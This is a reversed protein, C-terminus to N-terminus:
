DKTLPWRGGPKVDNVHAPVPSLDGDSTRQDPSNTDCNIWVLSVEHRLVQTVSVKTCPMNKFSDSRHARDPPSNAPLITFISVFASKFKCPSWHTLMLILNQPAQTSVQCLRTSLANMKEDSDAWLIFSRKSARLCIQDWLGCISLVDWLGAM